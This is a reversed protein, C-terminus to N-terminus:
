FLVLKVFLGDMHDYGDDFTKKKVLQQISKKEQKICNRPSKMDM